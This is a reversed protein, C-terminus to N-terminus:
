LGNRNFLSKQELEKEKLKGFEVQSWLMRTMRRHAQLARVLELCYAETEPKGDLQANALNTVIQAEIAQQADTLTPDNLLRQAEAAKTQPDSRDL